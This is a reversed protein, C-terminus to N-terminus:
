GFTGFNHELFDKLEYPSTGRNEMKSAKLASACNGIYIAGSLSSGSALSLAMASLLSEKRGDRNSGRESFDPLYNTYTSTIQAEDKVPEYCIIGERELDIILNGYDTQSFFSRSLYDIGDFFNNTVGRIESESCIVFGVNRYNGINRFGEDGTVVASMLGREKVKDALANVVRENLFGQNYDCFIVGDYEGILDSIKDVVSLEIEEDIRVTNRRTLELLTGENSLYRTRTPIKYDNLKIIDTLENIEPDIEELTESFGSDGISVVKVQGGLSYINRAILGAGGVFIRSELYDLSLASSGEYTRQNGCLVREEVFSDGVVLIKSNKYGKIVRELSNMNLDNKVLFSHIRERRIDERGLFDKMLRTSSFVIDGPSYVIKGGSSEVLRKESLFGPHNRKDTSYEAGKVYVDPKIDRILDNAVHDEQIFVLDVSELAALNKARLEATILPNLYTKNVFDDGTISIILVDGREKAFQLHRLHGPHILDFCGHCHVIKKGQEKLSEIAELLEERNKIKSETSMNM